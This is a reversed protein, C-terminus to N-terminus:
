AISTCDLSWSSIWVTKEYLLNNSHLYNYVHKYICREMLKGLCSLLSIPRYNSAIFKEGKKFLPNIISEKWKVPFYQDNLSKNFLLSLPYSISNKVNKLLKHSILDPGVAKNVSLSSIINETEPITIQISELKNNTKAAFNPLDTKSDDIKSISSFYENLCEAKEFDTCHLTETNGDTTCIIPISESKKNSNVLNRLHKWYKQPSETRINCLNEDLHSFYRQKTYKIRNNVKNRLVKYKKGTPTM